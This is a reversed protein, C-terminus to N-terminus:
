EQYMTMNFTQNATPIYLVQDERLHLGKKTDEDPDIVICIGASKDGLDSDRRIAKARIKAAEISDLGVCTGMLVVKGVDLPVFVRHGREFLPAYAYQPEAIVSLEKVQISGDAEILYDDLLKRQNKHKMRRFSTSSLLSILGLSKQYIADIKEQPTDVTQLCSSFPEELEMLPIVVSNLEMLHYIALTNELLPLPETTQTGVLIKHMLRHTVSEGFGLQIIHMGQHLGGSMEVEGATIDDINGNEDTRPFIGKGRTIVAHGLYPYSQNLEEIHADKIVVAEEESSTQDLAEQILRAREYFIELDRYPESTQEYSTSM